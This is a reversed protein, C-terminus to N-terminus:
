QMRSAQVDQIVKLKWWTYLAPGKQDGLASVGGLQFLYKLAINQVLIVIRGHYIIM